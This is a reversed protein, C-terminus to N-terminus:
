KPLKDPVHGKKLPVTVEIGKGKSDWYWIVMYCSPNDLEKDYDPSFAENVKETRYTKKDKNLKLMYSFPVGLLTKHYNVWIADPLRGGREPFKGKVFNVVDKPTDLIPTEVGTTDAETTPKEESRIENEQQPSPQDSIPLIGKKCVEDVMKAADELSGGSELIKKALEVKAQQKKKNDAQLKKDLEKIGEYVIDSWKDTWEPYKQFIYDVAKGKVEDAASNHSKTAEVLAELCDIPIIPNKTNRAADLAQQFCVNIPNDLGDNITNLINGILSAGGGRLFKDAQDVIGKLADKESSFEKRFQLVQDSKMPIKSTKTEGNATQTVNVNSTGAFQYEVTALENSISKPQGNGSVKITTLTKGAITISELSNGYGFHLATLTNTKACYGVVNHPQQAKTTTFVTLLCLSIITRQM